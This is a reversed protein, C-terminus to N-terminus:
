AELEQKGLIWKLIVKTDTRLNEPPGKGEAKEVLINYANRVTGM